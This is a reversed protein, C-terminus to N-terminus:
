LEPIGASRYGYCGISPTDNTARCRTGAALSVTSAAPISLLKGFVLPAPFGMLSVGFWGKAKLVDASSKYEEQARILSRTKREIDKRIGRRTLISM